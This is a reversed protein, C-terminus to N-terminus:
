HAQCTPCYYVSGGMYAEREISTHCTPCPKGATAKSLITQYGGRRGVLDSETNRGGRDAMTSLTRKVCTFLLRRDRGSLTMVKRKPHMRANFLIDQLVGNGLGPIRQETALLGKLSLKQVEEPSVIRDFYAADFAASLPSPKAKAVLYYPNDLEGKPFAGMGGYMQVTASISTGDVFEILLQHRVPRPVGPGQFRIGAGEGLLIAVGEAEIEVLGGHAEARGITRGDLLESYKSKDGYYWALKHATHGATV